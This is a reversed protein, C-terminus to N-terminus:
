KQEWYKEYIKIWKDVYKSLTTELEGLSSGRYMNLATLIIDIEDEEITVRIQTM